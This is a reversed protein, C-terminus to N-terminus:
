SRLQSQPQPPLLWVCVAATAAVGAAALFATSSGHVQWLAGFMAGAPLALLGTVLHYRGFAAGQRQPPAFAAIMAREPGEVLGTHIGHALALALVLAPTQAWALGAYVAAFLLFGSGLTKSLGIRDGLRGLLLASSSKVMHLGVWLLPLALLSDQVGLVEQARLVVFLDSTAALTFLGMPLLLRWEGREPPALIPSVTRLERSRPAEKLLWVLVVLSIAGPIAALAFVTRLDLACWTLLVVAVLPGIVAGAHDMARHFGFAESRTEPPVAEALLADRPSTRLGKGVRDFTRIAIVHGASSALAMLPRAIAPIAYGLGVLGKRRSMRDSLGGSVLKLFSATADALGEMLGLAAPGAGLSSTLFLPLLPAVMESAVDSFFSVIGLALVSPVQWPRLRRTRAAESM